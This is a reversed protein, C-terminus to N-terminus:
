STSNPRMDLYLDYTAQGIDFTSSALTTTILTITNVLSGAVINIRTTTSASWLEVCSLSLFKMACQVFEVAIFIILYRHVPLIVPIAVPSSEAAAANHYLQCMSFINPRRLLRPYTSSRSKATRTSTSTSPFLRPMIKIPSSTSLVALHPPAGVSTFASSSPTLSSIFSPSTGKAAVTNCLIINATKEEKNELTEYVSDAEVGSTM